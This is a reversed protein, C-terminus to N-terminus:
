CFVETRVKDLIVARIIEFDFQQRDAIPARDWEM